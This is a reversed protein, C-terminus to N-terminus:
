GRLRRRRRAVLVGFVGLLLLMQGPLGRSPSTACGCGEDEGNTGPNMPDGGMDASMDPDDSSSMDAMMEMDEGPPSGMDEENSGPMDEPTNMDVMMGMDEETMGMDEPMGMDGMMGMDESMSPELIDISASVEPAVQAGRAALSSTTLTAMGLPADSPIAIQIDFMCTTLPAMDLGSVQLSSTGTALGSTNCGLQTPLGVATAGPVVADLDAIFTVGTLTDSSSLNALSFMATAEEGAEVEATAFAVSWDILDFELSASTAFGEIGFGQVTAMISSTSFVAPQVGINDPVVMPISITCSQGAALEGGNLTITDTGSLTSGAGCVDTMPLGMAQAGPIGEGLNASFDIDTITYAPHDNTLVIDWQVMDGPKARAVDFSSSTTLPANIVLDATARGHVDPSTLDSTTSPYEGVAATGPIFLTIAFTCSAGATLNGGTFTLVGSGSIESGVGCVDQLPLAVAILGPLTAGLDHTFELDSADTLGFNEITYELQVDSGLTGESLFAMEFGFTEVNLFNSTSDSSTSTGNVTATVNSTTSPYMGLPAAAPVQVAVQFTCSGNPNVTGGTLTISSTGSLQSGAGCPNQLPLNIATLGTLVADLDHSFSVSTAPSIANENYFLTYEITAVGGPPVGQEIFTHILHPAAILDVEDSAEFGQISAGDITATPPMIVHEYVGVPADLSLAFDVTFTCSGSAPLSGGNLSLTQEGTTPFNQLLQLSSGGGCVDSAPLGIPTSGPIFNSITSMFAINSAGSTTSTNTITYTATLTQDVSVPDPSLSVTLIPLPAVELPYSVDVANVTRGNVDASIGSTTAPYIGAAAGGDVAVDIEFSCTGRNAALEGGTLAFGDGMAQLSSGQGCVGQRPLGVPAFSAGLSEVFTVGTAGSARDLNEITYAFKVTDGPRTKPPTITKTLVLNSQATEVRATAFGSSGANSNLPGSILDFSGGSVQLDVSITCSTGAALTGAFNQYTISNSGATATITGACDSTLRPNPAVTVGAPLTENFNTSFTLNSNLTNDILYTMTVIGGFSVIDPTITKSLGPRDVVLDLTDSATGSNGKDSILDGTTNQFPISSTGSAVVNVGIVCTENAGLRDLSFTITNGGTPATIVGLCDSAIGPAAAITVGAPLVNTFALDQTPVSTDITYLLRSTSGPGVTNPEFRMDFSPQQAMAEGPSGVVVVWAGVLACTLKCVKGTISM